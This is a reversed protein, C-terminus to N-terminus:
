GAPVLVYSTYYKRIAHNNHLEYDFKSSLRQLFKQYHTDSKIWSGDPNAFVYKSEIGLIRQKEYLELILAKAEPLLPVFRGGRSNGKEDKTYPVHEYIQTGSKKVQIFPNDKRDPSKDKTIIVLQRRYFGDSKDYLAQLDGNSFAIIRVYMYAQYSQKEKKELDM